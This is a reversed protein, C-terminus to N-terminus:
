VGALHAATDIDVSVLRSAGPEKMTIGILANAMEMSVKNHTIYIFQLQESMEKVLNCFRDVNADDLPADVEDLICFPAPNLRFISFVLSLATLAKEGGSLLHITNNKKGPPRAMVSVGSDLLEDGILELYAHGGGFIKPFLIGMDKNVNDFTKKFQSRTKQDIKKITSELSLIAEDLDNYQIDLYNKRESQLSYEDIAALNIAGLRQIKQAIKTLHIKWESENAKPDMDNLIHQIMNNQPIRNKISDTTQVSHSHNMTSIKEPPSEKIFPNEYIAEEQAKKKITNESREMRLSELQERISQLKEGISKKKNELTYLSQEMESLHERTNTLTKESVLRAELAQNLEIQLNENPTNLHNLASELEMQRTHINEIQEQMREQTSQNANKKTQINTLQIDFQHIKEKSQKIQNQLENFRRKQNERERSLNEKKEEAYLIKELLTDINEQCTKVGKENSMKQTNLDIEDLNLHKKRQHIHLLQAKQTTIKSYVDNYHQTYQALNNQEIQWHNELDHLCAESLEEEKQLHDVIKKQEDAQFSLSTIQKEREFLTLSKSSKKSIKVWDRGIWFGDQTIFSEHSLLECRKSWAIELTNVIYIHALFPLELPLNYVKESLPSGLHVKKSDTKNIRASQQIFTIQGSSLHQIKDKIDEFSSLCLANLYDKLIWELIKEWENDVRIIQALKKHTYLGEDKLWQTIDQDHQSLSASQIAQLEIYDKHISQWIPRTKKLTTKIKKQHERQERKQHQWENVNKESDAIKKKFRILSNELSILAEELPHSLLTQTEKEHAILRESILRINKSFHERKTREVEITQQYKALIKTSSEWHEDWVLYSEQQAEFTLESDDLKEQEYLREPMLELELEKLTQLADLDDDIQTKIQQHSASLAQIDKLFSQKREKKHTMEQEIHSIKNGFRYVNEQAENVMESCDAHKERQNNASLHLHQEETKLAELINEQELITFSLSEVCDHYKKWRLAFLESKLRREDYKLDKYKQASVSQKQLHILQKNLEERIDFLRNMNERTHKIRNETERRREKYKSIGAAEELFVRLEQPKSEILRSIMGQEIIAYSRPGLGTGLFINTIDKKRCKTGNLYYSSINERTVKRRLAIESYSSYEGQLRGDQNDFILEISAQGVPKRMTSGNFIVDTMSDGRLHKASSEGMVWRVADILNSKGCGNPGVVATLNHPFLVTTPDVFSKFGALKIQKLRM